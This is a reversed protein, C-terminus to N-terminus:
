CNKKNDEEIEAQEAAACEQEKKQVQIDEEEKKKNAQNKEEEAYRKQQQVWQMRQERVLVQSLKEIVGFQVYYHMFFHEGLELKETDALVSEEVNGIPKYKM